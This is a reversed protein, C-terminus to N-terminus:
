FLLLSHEILHLAIQQACVCVNHARRGRTRGQVIAVQHKARNEHDDAEARHNRANRHELAQARRLEDADNDAEGSERQHEKANANIERPAFGHHGAAIARAAIFQRYEALRDTM